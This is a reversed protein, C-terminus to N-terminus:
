STPVTEDKKMSGSFVRIFSLKQVFPDIRTKFVQAVLPAPKNGTWPVRTATGTQRGQALRSHAGDRGEEHERQVRSHLEAEARISRNEDQIGAGRATRTQKRDM